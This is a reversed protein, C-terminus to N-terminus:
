DISLSPQACSRPALQPSATRWCGGRYEEVAYSADAPYDDRHLGRRMMCTNVAALGAFTSFAVLWYTRARPAAPSAAVAAVQAFQALGLLLLFWVESATATRRIFLAGFVAEGIILAVTTLTVTLMALAVWDFSRSSQVSDLVLDKGTEALAAVILGAIVSSFFLMSQSFNDALRARLQESTELVPESGM